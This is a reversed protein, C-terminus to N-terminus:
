IHLVELFQFSFFFKEMIRNFVGHAAESSKRNGQAETRLSASIHRLRLGARGGGWGVGAEIGTFDQPPGPQSQEAGDKECHGAPQGRWRPRRVSLEGWVLRGVQQAEESCTM